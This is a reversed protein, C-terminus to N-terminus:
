DNLSCSRCSGADCFVAGLFSDKKCGTPKSDNCKCTIAGDEGDDVVYESEDVQSAPVPIAAENGYINIAIYKYGKPIQQENNLIFSPIEKGYIFKYLDLLEQKVNPIQFLASSANGIIDKKTSTLEAKLGTEPTKSLVTIGSNKRYVGAIKVTEGSIRSTSKTCVSCNEGMVCYYKGKYKVPSCGTGTNCTCTVGAEEEGGDDILEATEPDVMLFSYGEPLVIKTRGDSLKVAISGDPFPIGKDGTQKISQIIKADAIEDLERVQLQQEKKCSTFFGLVLVLSLISFQKMINKNKPTQSYRVALPKCSPATASKSASVKMKARINM